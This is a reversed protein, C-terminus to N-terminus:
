KYLLRGNHVEFKSGMVQIRRVIEEKPISTDGFKVQASHLADTDM